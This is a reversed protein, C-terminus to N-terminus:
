IPAGQFNLYTKWDHLDAIVGHFTALPSQFPGWGARIHVMKTAFWWHMCTHMDCQRLMTFIRCRSQQKQDQHMVNNWWVWNPPKPEIHFYASSPPLISKPEKSTGKVSYEMQDMNKPDHTIHNARYSTQECNLYVVASMCENLQDSLLLVSPCIFLVVLYKCNM